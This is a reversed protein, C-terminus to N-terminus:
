IDKSSKLKGAELVAKKEQKNRYGISQVGCDPFLIHSIM